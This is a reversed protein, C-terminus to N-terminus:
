IYLVSIHMGISKAINGQSEKGELYRRVAKIKESEPIKAM